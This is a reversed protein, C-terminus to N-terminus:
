ASKTRTLAARLLQEPSGEAPLDATLELAEKQSYGLQTLADRVQNLVASAPSLLGEVTTALDIIIRSATKKGIGPIAELKAVNNTRIADALEDLQYAGILRLGTGPGIGSINIIKEFFRREDATGFGFLTISDERVVQSTYLEIDQGSQVKQLLHVPVMVRYGVGAVVVTVGKDNIEKITGALYGIM